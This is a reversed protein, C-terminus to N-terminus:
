SWAVVENLGDDNAAPDADPIGHFRCKCGVMGALTSIFHSTHADGDRDILRMIHAYVANRHGRSVDSNEALVVAASDALDYAIKFRELANM